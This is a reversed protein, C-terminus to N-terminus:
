GNFDRRWIVVNENEYVPKIDETSRRLIVQQTFISNEFRKDIVVSEKEDMLLIICFNNTDNIYRKEIKGDMKTIVCFPTQNGWRINNDTLNMIVGDDTELQDGNLTITGYSYSYNGAKRLNFNWEGWNLIWYGNSIMSKDTVLVFPKPNLPHTYQLINEAQDQTFNQQDILINTANEKNVSLIQNLIEVTRTTNHTYNDVTLQAFDGSSTLMGFIGASLTENSTSLAKDIWYERSTSPSKDGFQYADDYSRLPLTEIYGLRGDFVVPRHAIGTFFHGYVWSSIVVTNESTNQSIWEGADWLDDNMRPNLNSLNDNIVLISPLVILILLIVSTAAIIVKKTSSNSNASTIMEIGLGIAIGASVALPPILLLIFRIGESLTFFGIIVWLVLFLYFFGNLPKNHDKNHNYDGKIKIIFCISILGLIGLGLLGPGIGFILEPLGPPQLESIVTYVNPWDIWPNQASSLNLLTLPGFILKLLNYYDFLLSLLIFIGLFSLIVLSFTKVKQRKFKTWIFFIVMSILLLYFLYQWGNWAMSFLFMFFASCTALSIKIKLDRGDQIAALLLWVIVLPFIVNFMDTDFFGPVTRMFYFPATVILLGAIIAGYDNTYERVFFYAVVGALPAIFAPLWYSIVMLSVPMFINVIKYIFVTLYAILPPYDLPVGPPYYSYQDVEGNGTKNVLIGKNLLNETLRYNYYSDMDYMYPLGNQDQYFSKESDPIGNLHTSEVRLFIGLSFILIIIALKIATQKRSM